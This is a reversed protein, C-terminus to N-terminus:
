AQQRRRQDNQVEPRRIKLWSYEQKSVEAIIMECHEIDKFAQPVYTSRSQSTRLRAGQSGSGASAFDGSHELISYVAFASYSTEPVFPHANSSFVYFKGEVKGLTASIGGQKGPRTWYVGNGSTWGHSKLLSVLDGRQNYHDGPRNGSTEKRQWPTAGPEMKTKVAVESFARAVHFLQEVEGATIRPVSLLGGREFRYGRSPAVCIYGGRGRTEIITEKDANVALKRNRVEEPPKFLYHCGGGSPTLQKPLRVLLDTLGIQDCAFEFDAVLGSKNKADIDLCVIEGTPVGIMEATWDGDLKCTADKFGHKTMPAKSKDCPFIPIGAEAYSRAAETLKKSSMGWGEMDM